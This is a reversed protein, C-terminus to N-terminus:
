YYKPALGIKTSVPSPNIVAENKTYCQQVRLQKLAHGMKRGVRDWCKFVRGEDKRRGRM